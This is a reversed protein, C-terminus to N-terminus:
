LLQFGKGALYIGLLLSAAGGGMYWGPRNFWRFLRAVVDFPLLLYVLAELFVLWALSTIIVPWDAVWVNHSLVLVVGLIFVFISMIYVLARDGALQEIAPILDKHRLPAVVGMAILYIGFVKALFISMEM